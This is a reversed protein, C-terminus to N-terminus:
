PLVYDLAVNMTFATHRCDTGYNDDGVTIVGFDYRGEDAARDSL